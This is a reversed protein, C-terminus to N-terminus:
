FYHNRPCTELATTAAGALLPCVDTGLFGSGPGLSGCSRKPADRMTAHGSGGPSTMAIVSSLLPASPGSRVGLHQQVGAGLLAGTQPSVCLFRNNRVVAPLVRLASSGEVGLKLVGPEKLTLLMM